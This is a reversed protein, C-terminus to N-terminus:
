SGYAIQASNVLLRETLREAPAAVVATLGVFVVPRQQEVAREAGQALEPWSLRILAVFGVLRSASYTQQGLETSGVVDCFVV